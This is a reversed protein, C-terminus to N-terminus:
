IEKWSIVTLINDTYGAVVQITRVTSGVTATSVINKQSAGTVTITTSGDVTTLTESTFDPDRLLRLMAEEAGSEALMYAVQGIEVQSGGATSNVVTSVAAAVVVMAMAVFILLVVLTQGSHLRPM